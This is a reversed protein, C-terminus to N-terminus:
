WYINIAYHELNDAKYSRVFSSAPLELLKDRVPSDPEYDILTVLYRHFLAYGKNNAGVRDIDDLKYRICPYNLRYSEPPNYYVNDNGLISKLKEHLTLQSAM